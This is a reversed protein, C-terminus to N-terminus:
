GNTELGYKKQAPTIGKLSKDHPQIGCWIKGTRGKVVEDVVLKATGNSYTPGTFGTGHEASVTISGQASSFNLVEGKVLDLKSPSSTMGNVEGNAGYKYTLVVDVTKATTGTSM